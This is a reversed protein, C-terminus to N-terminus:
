TKRGPTAAAQDGERLSSARSRRRATITITNQVDNIGPIAWAIEGVDRKLRKHSVTGTLSARGADCRIEVDNAGPVLDIADYILDEIEQDNTPGVLQGRRAAVMAVLAPATIGIAIEPGILPPFATAGPIPVVTSLGANFGSMPLAPPAPANFGFPATPRGGTPSAAPLMGGTFPLPGYPFPSQGWLPAVPGFPTETM